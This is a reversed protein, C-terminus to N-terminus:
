ADSSPSFGLYAHSGNSGGLGLSHKLRRGKCIGDSGGTLELDLDVVKKCPNWPPGSILASVSAIPLVASM